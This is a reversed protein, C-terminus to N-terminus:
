RPARGCFRRLREQPVGQARPRSGVTDIIRDAYEARRVGAGGSRSRDGRGPDGHQGGDSAAPPDRQVAAQASTPASSSCCGAGPIGTRALGAPYGAVASQPATGPCRDGPRCPPDTRRRAPGLRLVAPDPEVPLNDVCIFGLDEFCNAALSKGSGSLGTIIVLRKGHKLADGGGATDGCSGAWSRAALPGAPAGPPLGQAEAPPQARRGRDAGVPEPGSGGADRRLAPRRRSDRLDQEDLGLRDYRKDAKWPDLRIVYEVAKTMRVAAVGFLDKVNIIGLGRLEM